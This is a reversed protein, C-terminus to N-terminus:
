SGNKMSAHQAINFLKYFCTVTLIDLIHDSCNTISINASKGGVFDRMLLMMGLGSSDISEVNALDIIYQNASNEEYAKRFEKQIVNGLKGTPAIKVANNSPMIEVHVGM